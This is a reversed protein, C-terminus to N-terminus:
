MAGRGLLIDEVERKLDDKDLGPIVETILFQVARDYLSEFETQDMNAFSISKPLRVEGYKTQVVDVHGIRHKFVGLIEDVSNFHDQNKWVLRLLAMFKRHHQLNRGRKVDVTVLSGVKIKRLLEEAEEDAPVLSTLTRRFVTQM